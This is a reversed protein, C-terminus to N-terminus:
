ALFKNKIEIYLLNEIPTSPVFTMCIIDNQSIIYKIERPLFGKYWRCDDFLFNSEVPTQFKHKKKM